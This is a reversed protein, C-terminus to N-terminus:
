SQYKKRVRQPDLGRLGRQSHWHVYTKLDDDVTRLRPRGVRRRWNQPPGLICSQLARSYDQSPDARSLHGFLSLRRRRITDSLPQGNPVHRFYHPSQPSHGWRRGSPSDNSNLRANHQM